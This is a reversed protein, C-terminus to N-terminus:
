TMELEMAIRIPKVIAMPNKVTRGPEVSFNWASRLDRLAKGTLSGIFAWGTSITLKFCRVTLGTAQVKM